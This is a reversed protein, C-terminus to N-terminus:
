WNYILYDGCPLDRQYIELTSTSDVQLSSWFCTLFFQIMKVTCKLALKRKEQRAKPPLNKDCDVEIRVEPGVTSLGGNFGCLVRSSSKQLATDLVDGRIVVVSPPSASSCTAWPPQPHRSANLALSSTARPLRTQHNAVRCTAPPNFSSSWQPGKWAM